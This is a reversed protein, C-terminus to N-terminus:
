KLVYRFLRDAPHAVVIVDFFSAGPNLIMAWVSLQGTAATSHSSFFKYAIWYWGSTSWVTSPVLISDLKTYLTQPQAPSQFISAKTLFYWVFSTRSFTPFPFTSHASDPPTSEETAATISSLLLQHDASRHIQLDHDESTFRPHHLLLPIRVLRGM